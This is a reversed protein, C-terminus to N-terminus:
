KGVFRRLSVTTYVGSALGQRVVPDGDVRWVRDGVRIRDTPVIDLAGPSFLVWETEVEDSKALETETSSDHQVLARPLLTENPTEWSETPDGYSDLIQGARLRYVKPGTGYSSGFIM